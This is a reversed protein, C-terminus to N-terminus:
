GGKRKERYKYKKVYGEVMKQIKNTNIERNKNHCVQLLHSALSVCM